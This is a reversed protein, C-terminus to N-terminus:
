KPFAQKVLMPITAKFLHMRLTDMSNNPVSSNMPSGTFVNQGSATWDTAKPKTPTSCAHDM